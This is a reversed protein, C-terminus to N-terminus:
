IFGPPVPRGLLVQGGQEYVAPSLFAHQGAVLADRLHRSLNARAAQDDPNAIELAARCAAVAAEAAGKAAIRLLSSGEPLVPRGLKVDDWVLATQRYILARGALLSATARAISATRPEGTVAGGAEGLAGLAVGVAVIAHNLASFPIVPFRYIPEHRTTGAGRVFSWDAEIAVNELPIDYSGTGAMGFVRWDAVLEAERRPFVIMRPKAAPGEGEVSIGAGLWDAGACGSAFKWRGDLILRDNRRRVPQVPFLGAAFAIDPGDAYIQEFRHPPLGALYVAAGAFSAVWGTSGDAASIREVVRLFSAPDIEDGRLTKPVLLRYLGINKMGQAIDDPLRGLTEIETRRTRLGALFGAPVPGRPLEKELGSDDIIDLVM